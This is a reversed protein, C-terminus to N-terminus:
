QIIMKEKVIQKDLIISLYYVGSSVDPLNIEGGKFTEDSYIMKGMMDYVIIKRIEDDTDSLLINFSGRNPNPFISIIEEESLNEYHNEEVISLKDHYSDDRNNKDDYSGRKNQNLSCPNFPEIYAHFLGGTDPRIVTGNQLTVSEGAYLNVNATGTVSFNGTSITEFAAYNYNGSTLQHNSITRNVSPEIVKIDFYINGPMTPLYLNENVPQGIDNLRIHYSYTKLTASTNTLNSVYFINTEDIPNDDSCGNTYGIITPNGTYPFTINQVIEYKDVFYVGTAIGSLETCVDIKSLSEVMSVNTSTINYPIDSSIAMIVATHANIKGYGIENNWLGYENNSYNYSKICSSLKDCSRCLIERAEEQTLCPNVSLILAMVGTAHPCASSTGNFRDYYGWYDTTPIYVGPAVIDIGAGYNSGGDWYEDNDLSTPSKREGYQNIAGVAITNPLSAPYSVYSANDNGSAFLVPCGLGNRGNNVANMIADDIFSSEATKYSNNLIDAGNMWAWNIATAIKRHILPTDFDISISMLKCDPAIGAVGINNDKMAGIVGACWTGHYGHIDSSLTDTEVDYSLYYINDKLDQHDLRIGEDIVAVVVGEGTSYYWAPEVNIDMGVVGGNQGTNKLGWQQSYKPDNSLLPDEMRLDPEAYKFLGSEYFMNAAELSNLQSKETIALTFWNEMFQDQAVIRMNTEASKNFLLITDSLQKLCVYFYESLELRDGDLNFSPAVIVDENKSINSIMEFYEKESINSGLHIGANHRIQTNVAGKIRNLYSEDITDTNIQRTNGVNPLRKNIDASIYIYDTNLKLPIKNGGYYYFYEQSIIINSFIM